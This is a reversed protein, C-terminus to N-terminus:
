LQSQQPARGKKCPGPPLMREGPTSTGAIQGCVAGGGHASAAPRTGTGGRCGLGAAPFFCCCRASSAGPWRKGLWGQDRRILKSHICTYLQVIASISDSGLICCPSRIPHLTFRCSHIVTIFLERERGAAAAAHSIEVVYKLVLARGQWDRQWRDLATMNCHRAADQTQATQVPTLPLAARALTRLAGPLHLPCPTLSSSPALSSLPVWCPSSAQITRRRCRRWSIHSHVRTNHKRSGAGTACWM